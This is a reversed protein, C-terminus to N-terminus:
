GKVSDARWFFMPFASDDTLGLGARLAEVTRLHAPDFSKSVQAARSAATALVVVQVGAPWARALVGLRTRHRGCRYCDDWLPLFKLDHRAM